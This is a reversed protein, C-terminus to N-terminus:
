RMLCKKLIRPSNGINANIKVLFQSGIIMPECEPHKKNAPLVARGGALEELVVKPEVGERIAVYEMQPTIIGKLAAERQTQFPTTPPCFSSGGSTDYLRISPIEKDNLHVEKMGVKIEPYLTGQVLM